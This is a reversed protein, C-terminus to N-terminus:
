PTRNLAVQFDSQKLKLEASRLYLPRNRLRKSTFKKPFTVFIPFFNSFADFLHSKPFLKSRNWELDQQVDNWIYKRPPFDNLFLSDTWLIKISIRQIQRSIGSVQLSWSSPSTLHDRLKVCGRFARSTTWAVCSSSSISNSEKDECAKRRWRFHKSAGHFNISKFSFDLHEFCSTISSNASIAALSRNCSSEAIIRALGHVWEASKLWCLYRKMYKYIQVM